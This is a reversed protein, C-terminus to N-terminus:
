DQNKLYKQLSVPDDTIISDVNMEILKAWAKEDNATWPAVKVGIEHLKDVDAKTIWQWDPSIIDM